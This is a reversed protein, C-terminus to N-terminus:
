CWLTRRAEASLGRDEDPSQLEGRPVASGRATNVQVCVRGNRTDWLGQIQWFSGHCLRERLASPEKLGM